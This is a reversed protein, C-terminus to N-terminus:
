EHDQVIRVDTASTFDLLQLFNLWKGALFVSEGSVSQIVISYIGLLYGLSVRSVGLLYQIGPVPYMIGLLYGLDLINRIYCALDNADNPLVGGRWPAHGPGVPSCPSSSDSPLIASTWDLKSGWSEFPM